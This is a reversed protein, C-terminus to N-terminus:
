ARTRGEDVMEQTTAENARIADQLADDPDRTIEFALALISRELARARAQWYDRCVELNGVKGLEPIAKHRGCECTM